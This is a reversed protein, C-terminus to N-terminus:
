ALGGEDEIVVVVTAGSPFLVPTRIFARGDLLDAKGLGAFDTRTIAESM